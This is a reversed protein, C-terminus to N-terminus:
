SAVFFLFLARGMFTHLFGFYLRVNREIRGIKCEFCLLTLGFIIMYVAAFLTSASLTSFSITISIVALTIVCISNSINTCRLYKLVEELTLAKFRQYRSAQANGGQQGM